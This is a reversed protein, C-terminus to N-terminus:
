AAVAQELDVILVSCKARRSIENPISPHFLRRGREAHTGVIILRAQLEEAVELIVDAPTGTRAVCEVAVGAAEAQEQAAALIETAEADPQLLHVVDAPAQRRQERLEGAAIPRYACVVVLEGGKSQAVDIAWELANQAAATGDFGVVIRTGILHKDTMVELYGLVRLFNGPM